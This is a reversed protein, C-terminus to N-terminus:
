VGQFSWKTIFDRVDSITEEEDRQKKLQEMLADAIDCLPPVFNAVRRPLIQKNSASRIRKWEDGKSSLVTVISLFQRFNTQNEPKNRPWQRSHSFKM